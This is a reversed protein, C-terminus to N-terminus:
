SLLRCTYSSHSGYFAKTLLAVIASFDIFKLRPWAKLSAFYCIVLYLQNFLGSKKTKHDNVKLHNM